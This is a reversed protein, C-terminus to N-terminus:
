RDHRRSAATAHLSTREVVRFEGEIVAGTEADRSPARAAVRLFRSLRVVPFVILMALISVLIAAVALPLALLAVVAALVIGPVGPVKM